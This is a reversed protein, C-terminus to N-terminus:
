SKEGKLITELYTVGVAYASWMDSKFGYFWGPSKKVGVPGFRDILAQRINADKARSNHCIHMKVAMRPIRGRHQYQEAAAYLQGIWFVTEFVEAGVPMGFSAVMEIAFITHGKDSNEKIFRLLEENPVIKSELPRLEPTSIVCYASNTNGPDIALIKL